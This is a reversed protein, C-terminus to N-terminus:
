QPLPQHEGVQPAQPFEDDEWETAYPPAPIEARRGHVTMPKTRLQPHTILDHV